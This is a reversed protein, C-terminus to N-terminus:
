LMFCLDVNKEGHGFYVSGFKSSNPVHYAFLGPWLLSRLTVVGSSADYQITWSGAPKDDALSDLFDHHPLLGELERQLSSKAANRAPRLHLYSSLKTSDDGVLGEFSRNKVIEQAANLIYSGRPIVSGANDVANVFAALRQDEKLVVKRSEFAPPAEEPAAEEDDRPTPEPADGGEAADGGEGDGEASAAGELTPEAKPAAPPKPAYDIPVQEDIKYTFALNGSFLGSVRSARDADAASVAQLEKFTVGNDDSVFTRRNQFTLGKPQGQAILYDGSSGTVRGWFVVRAFNYHRQLVALSTALAARQDFSLTQGSAALAEIGANLDSADM